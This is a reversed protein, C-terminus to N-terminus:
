DYDGTIQTLEIKNGFPDNVFLRPRNTIAVTEEIAVGHQDLQTRLASLDDVQLCLHQEASKATMGEDVFVHVEHGDPGARFWVLRGVMLSAPPKVEAMGLAGGYFRRAAEHGDAPMPVSTHQLRLVAPMTKGGKDRSSRFRSSNACVRRRIDLGM